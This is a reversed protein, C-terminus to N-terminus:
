PLITFRTPFVYTPPHLVPVIILVSYEFKIIFLLNNGERPSRGEGPPSIQKGQDGPYSHYRLCLSRTPDRSLDLSLMYIFQLGQDELSPTLRPVVIEARLVIYTVFGLFTVDTLSSIQRLPPM